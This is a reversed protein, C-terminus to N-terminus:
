IEEVAFLRKKRFWEMFDTEIEPNVEIVINYLVM